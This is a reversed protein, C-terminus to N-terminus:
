LGNSQAILWRVHIWQLSISTSISERLALANKMEVSYLTLELFTGLHFTLNYALFPFSVSGGLLINMAIHLPIRQGMIQSILFNLLIAEYVSNWFIKWTLLHWEVWVFCSLPHIADCCGLPPAVEVPSSQMVSPDCRKVLWELISREVYTPRKAARQRHICHMSFSICWDQGQVVTAWTWQM